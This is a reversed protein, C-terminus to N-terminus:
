KNIIVIMIIIIIIQMIIIIIIIILNQKCSDSSIRKWKVSYVWNDHGM